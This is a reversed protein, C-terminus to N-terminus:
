TASRRRAFAVGPYGAGSVAQMTSVFLKEIGFARHLPALRSRSRPPPATPTPWSRAAGARARDRQRDILVLHDANAEPILLPVDASWGTPAPTPSWSRGPARSRRSSRGRWRPTSRPSRSRARRAAARVRSDVLDAVRARCRRDAGALPGRRRLAPGRQRVVRRRRRDRVLSPGGAAPRVEPGGHRHRRPHLGPDEREHRRAHSCTPPWGSTCTWAASCTPRSSTSTPPTPSRSAHGPGIQYGEGWAALFPLDSAYSVVTTDWGPPAGGAKHFPLEVPFAVRVGRALAARPDRGQAPRDARRHAGPAAGRRAAPHRQARGRRLHARPQAHVPRAAPREAAADPPDARDHGAARRDRELGGGSVGLPGGARDRDLDVRLTGKQGISLRNETPEGNILFRGRPGFDAAAQAGDSGNEEGVVFLLGIRREGARRWGSRRPSWRRRSGRRTAAARPRPDRGRGGGAPLYPPVTDVHTSFVLQPRAGPLRVPQGPRPLGATALTRYGARRLVGDLLDIAPQESGTPTELAVLARTLEFPDMFAFAGGTSPM